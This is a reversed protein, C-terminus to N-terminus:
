LEQLNVTFDVNFDGQPLNGLYKFKFDKYVKLARDPGFLKICIALALQSPGSGGYGWAFESSKNLLKQSEDIFIEQEYLWVKRSKWEGKLQVTMPPYKKNFNKRRAILESMAQDYDFDLYTHSSKLEAIAEQETAESVLWHVSDNDLKDLEM